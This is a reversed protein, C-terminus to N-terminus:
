STWKRVLLRISGDAQNEEEAIEYGQSKLQAVATKRVYRQVIKDVTQHQKKIQQATLGKSDIVIRGGGKATKQIGAKRGVGDDFVVDVPEQRGDSTTLMKAARAVMGLEALITLFLAPNFMTLAGAMMLSCPM